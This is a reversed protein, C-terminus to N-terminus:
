IRLQALIAITRKRSIEIDAQDRKMQERLQDIEGFCQQIATEFNASEEAAPQITATKNM